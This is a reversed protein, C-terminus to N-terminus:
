KENIIDLITNIIDLFDSVNINEFGAEKNMIAEAFKIKSLGFNTDTKIVKKEDDSLKSYDNIFIKKGHSGDLINVKQSACIGPNDCKLNLTENIGSPYFESSLFLRRPIDGDNKERKLDNDDYYFEICIDDFTRKSPVPICFSFVNNGWKKYTGTSSNLTDITSKKDHDAIFIYRRNQVIKSFNECMQILAGDGMGLRLKNEDNYGQPYFELFDIQISNLKDRIEQSYSEDNKIVDIANKIHMWDSPGETIILPNVGEAKKIANIENRFTKSEKLFNYANSFQSFEEAEIHEGNPMEIIEYRKKGYYKDMGLIVLPSHTTIIFQVMPFMKILEPIVNYQLDSHLHLEVEDIIVIGKIDGLQISKNLDNNDAYRIINMFMNFLAMQGTSLCALSPIVVNEYSDVLYVRNLGKGRYSARLFVKKKLIKTLILEINNRAIKLLRVDTQNVYKPISFENEIKKTLPNIKTNVMVDIRSDCIVNLLWSINDVYSNEVTISNYLKNSYKTQLAKDMLEATDYYNESLWFPKSYRDPGYYCVVNNEFLKKCNKEDNTIHKQNDDDNQWSVSHPVISTDNKWDDFKKKGNKALYELFVGNDELLIYSTTYNAGLKIEDGISLKYYLYGTGNPKLVNDYNAARGIEYFSDVISSLILSKGSGNEGVILLPKPRNKDDFPLSIDLSSVPGINQYNIKKIYM